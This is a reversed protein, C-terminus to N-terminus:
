LRNKVIQYVKEVEQEANETLNQLKALQNEAFDRDKLSAANIIVNLAASKLGGYAAMAAVGADSIVGTYGKEAAIGSLSLATACAQACNLPVVTAQKLVTQLYDTRIAKEADTAKPLAYGAMLQNFVDIDAQIMDTLSTRLAESEQLLTQLEAAVAAYKPKDVTLHCVMSILAAAQAGMLAAASGGGPTAQKSALQELFLDISHQRIENMIILRIKEAGYPKAAVSM